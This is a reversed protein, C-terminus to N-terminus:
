ANTFHEVPPLAFPEKLRVIQRAGDGDIVAVSALGAPTEEVAVDRPHRIVHNTRDLAVDIVDDGSDYTIGLLPIWEAVVQDGLDLSAVEIEAWKGLLSRSMRDFFGRWESRPLTRLNAMLTRRSWRGIDTLRNREMPAMLNEFHSVHVFISSASKTRLVANALPLSSAPVITHLGPERGLDSADPFLTQIQLDKLEPATYGTISVAAENAAVCHGTDNTAIIAVCDDLLAHVVREGFSSGLGARQTSRLASVIHQGLNRQPQSGFSVSHVRKRHAGGLGDQASRYGEPTVGFRRKFQRYFNKKSRYGSELAIAEIKIGSRVQTAAFIMRARTIYEHVTLGVESLFLRGVYASQRELKRALTGLTLRDAYEQHILDLM